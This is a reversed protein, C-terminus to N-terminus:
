GQLGECAERRLKGFEKTGLLRNTLRPVIQDNYVGMTPLTSPLQLVAPGAPRRRTPGGRRPLGPNPEASRPYVLLSVTAPQSRLGSLRKM